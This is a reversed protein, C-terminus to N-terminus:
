QENFTSYERAYLTNGGKDDKMPLLNLAEAKLIFLLRYSFTLSLERLHDYVGSATAEKWGKGCAYAKKQAEGHHINSRLVVAAIVLDAM